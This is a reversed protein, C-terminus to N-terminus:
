LIHFWKDLLTPFPKYCVKSLGHLDVTLSNKKVRPRQGGHKRLKRGKRALLEAFGEFKLLKSFPPSAERRPDKPPQLAIADRAVHATNDVGEIAKEAWETMLSQLVADNAAYGYDRMEEYLALARQVEHPERCTHQTRLITNFTVINPKIGAKKMKEYYWFAKDVNTARLCAKILSTFTVVDEDCGNMKMEELAQEAKQLEGGSGYADILTAWSTANPRLGLAKMEEMLQRIKEPSGTCVKMMTNYTVSNPQCPNTPKWGRHSGGGAANAADRNLQKRKGNERVPKGAPGLGSTLDSQAQGMTASLPLLQQQGELHSLGEDVLDPYAESDTPGDIMGDKAASRFTTSPNSGRHTQRHAGQNTGQRAEEYRSHSAASITASGDNDDNDDDRGGDSTTVFVLPEQVPAPSLDCGDMGGAKEKLATIGRTREGEEKEAHADRTESRNAPQYDANEHRFLRPKRGGRKMEELLGFARQEQGADACADILINYTKVNPACGAETMEELLSLGREVLGCKTCAGILATWTYVNPVVGSADMDAKVEFAQEWMKAKACAQIVTTYSFVDRQLKGDAWSTTDKYLLLAVDGRGAKACSKLLTNYTISDGEIGDDQMWEHIEWVREMDGSFVNMLSNYIYVNPKVGHQKMEEFIVMAEETLHTAACIDLLSRYMYVKPKLNQSHIAQVVLRGRALNGERRCQKLVQNYWYLRGPLIAIYRRGGAGGAGGVTKVRISRGTMIGYLRCLFDVAEHINKTDTRLMSMCAAGFAKVWEERGEKGVRNEWVDIKRLEQLLHLCDNLKRKRILNALQVKMSDVVCRASEAEIKVGLRQMSSLVAVCRMGEGRRAMRACGDALSASLAEACVILEGDGDVGQRCFFFSSSSSSSPSSPSSPSASSSLLLLCDELRDAAILSRCTDAIDALCLAPSPVQVVNEPSSPARVGSRKRRGTPTEDGLVDGEEEGKIKMGVEREIVASQGVCDIGSLLTVIDGGHAMAVKSALKHDGHLGVNKSTLTSSSSSSRGDGDGDEEEGKETQLAIVGASGLEVPAASEKSEDPNSGDDIVSDPGCENKSSDSTVTTKVASSATPVVVTVGNAQREVNSRGRKMRQGRRPGSVRAGSGSTANGVGGGGRAMWGVSRSGDDDPAHHRRHHIIVARLACACSSTSSGATTNREGGGGGRGGLGKLLLVGDDRDRRRRENGASGHRLDGCCCFSIPRCCVSRFGAVAFPVSSTKSESRRTTTRGTSKLFSSSTTTTTTTRSAIRYNATGCTACSNSLGGSGGWPTAIAAENQM